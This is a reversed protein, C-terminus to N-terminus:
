ESILAVVLNDERKIRVVIPASDLITATFHSEESNHSVISIHKVFDLRGKRYYKYLAEKACWMEAYLDGEEALSMEQESLYRSAVKRFDRNADEIDVACPKDSFAVAVFERSHSVGIYTNPTDVRPAGYDDYFIRTEVGLERRVIARWALAECRRMASGFQAVFACDESAAAQMLSEETAIREVVVRSSM